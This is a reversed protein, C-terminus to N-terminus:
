VLTSVVQNRVVGPKFLAMCLLVVNEDHIYPIVSRCGLGCLNEHGGHKRWLELRLSRLGELLSGCCAPRTAAVAQMFISM